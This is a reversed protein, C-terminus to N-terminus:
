LNSVHDILPRYQENIFKDFKNFIEDITKGYDFFHLITQKKTKVIGKLEYSITYIKRIYDPETIGNINVNTNLIISSGRVEKYRTNKYIIELPPKFTETFYSDYSARGVDLFSNSKLPRLNHLKLKYRKYFKDSFIAIEKRSELKYKAAIEKEHFAERILQKLYSKTLKIM